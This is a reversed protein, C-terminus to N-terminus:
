YFFVLTTILNQWCCEKLGTQKYARVYVKEKLWTYKKYLLEVNCINLKLWINIKLFKHKSLMGSKVPILSNGNEQQTM